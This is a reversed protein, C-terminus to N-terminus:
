PRKSGVTQTDTASGNKLVPYGGLEYQWIEQPVNRLFVKENLYLDGTVSGWEPRHMEPEAPSRQEWRGSAGGYYSYEIRL